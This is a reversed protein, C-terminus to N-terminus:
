GVSSDTVDLVPIPNGQYIIITVRRRLGSEVVKELRVDYRGRRAYRTILGQRPYNEGKEGERLSFLLLSVFSRPPIRAIKQLSCVARTALRAAPSAANRFIRLRTNRPLLRPFFLFRSRDDRYAYDRKERFYFGDRIYSSRRIILM